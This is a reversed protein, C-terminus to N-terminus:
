EIENLPEEKEVEEDEPEEAPLEIIEKEVEKGAELTQIVEIKLNVSKELRKTLLNTLTDVQYSSLNRPARITADIYWSDEISIIRMDTVKSGPVNLTIVEKVTAKTINTRVINGTIIVLPIILVILFIITWLISRKVKEKAEETQIPRFRALWFMFTAALITAILNSIFLLLSGGFYDLNWQAASLGTVCIPPVLAAAVVVGAIASGLGPYAMIFAGVFGATLAILLEFITPQTRSLIETGFETYPSVVGIIFSVLFIIVTAKILTWISNQMMRTSGRIISLAVILIPWVLPAILMGGIVVAGSNIILGLTIIITALILLVYFDLDNKAHEKIQSLVEQQRQPAIRFISFIKRLPNKIKIEEAEM